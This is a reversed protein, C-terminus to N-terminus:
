GPTLRIPSSWAHEGDARRVRVYYTRAEDPQWGHDTWVVHATRAELRESHVRRTGDFVDLDGLPLSAGVSVELVPRERLSAAKITAGMPQGHLRVDLSTRGGTLAYCRRDYLADFVAERSLEEAQVAVLGSGAPHFGNPHPHGQANGPHGDHSDSSALLGIPFREVWRSIELEPVFQTHVNLPSDAHLSNGWISYIEVLRDYREDFAQALSLPWEAIAPHHPITLAAGGWEDLARWLVEPHYQHPGRELPNGKWEEFANPAAWGIAGPTRPSTRVFPGGRERCYVNRHGYSASTWEYGHLTAFAGPANWEDNADQLLEWESEGLAFDHETLCCFDLRSVDRAYALAEARTGTGDNFGTQTEASHNHLDGFLLLRGDGLARPEREGRLLREVEAEHV